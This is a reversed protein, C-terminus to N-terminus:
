PSPSPARSVPAAASGRSDARQDARTGVGGADLLIVMRVAGSATCGTGGPGRGGGPGGSGPGSGVGPGGPGDGMGSGVGPGSGVGGSGSGGAGPGTGTGGPGGYGTGSGAGSGCSFPAMVGRQRSPGKRGTEIPRSSGLTAVRHVCLLKKRTRIGRRALAPTPAQASARATATGAAAAM